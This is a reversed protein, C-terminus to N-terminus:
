KANPFLKALDATLTQGGTDAGTVFKGDRGVIFYTPWGNVRFLTALPGKDSEMTQPWTVGKDKMFSLLKDKTDGSDVGIIELGLAHYKAYAAVLEPTAAVCPGCWTGWFDILVVSGKYDALKRPKGDLDVFSMDPAQYGPLLVVRDPRKEALPTFTVSRGYRDTKFEYSTGGVNFYKESNRYVEIVPDFTGDRNLDIRLGVYEADYLGQSGGIVFKMPAGDIMVEGARRTADYRMLALAKETKGPAAVYDLVVKSRVPYTIGGDTVTTEFYASYRGDRLEFTIPADDTLDGNANVDPYWTYGSTDNGSIAWGRNKGGYSLNIGYRIDSGAGAPGKTIAVFSPTAKLQAALKQYEAETMAFTTGAGGTEVLTAAGTEVTIPKSQRALGITGLALVSGVLYIAFVNRM